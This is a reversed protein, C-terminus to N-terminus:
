GLMMQSWLITLTMGVILQCISLWPCAWKALRWIEVTFVTQSKQQLSAPTNGFPGLVFQTCVPIPGRMFPAFGPQNEQAFNISESNGTALAPLEIQEANTVPQSVCGVRATMMDSPLLDIKTFDPFVSM